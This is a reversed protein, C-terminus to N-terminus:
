DCIQVEFGRDRFCHTRIYGLIRDADRGLAGQNALRPRFYLLVDDGADRALCEKVHITM